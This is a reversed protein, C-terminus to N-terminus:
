QRWLESARYKNTMGPSIAGCSPCEAHHKGDLVVLDFAGTGCYPCCCDFKENTAKKKLLTELAEAETKVVPGCGGCTNCFTYYPPSGDYDLVVVDISECQLCRKM